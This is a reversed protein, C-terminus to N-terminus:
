LDIAADAGDAQVAFDAVVEPVARHWLTPAATQQNTMLEVVASLSCRAIHGVPSLGVELRGHRRGTRLQPEWAVPSWRKTQATTLREILAMGHIKEQHAASAKLGDGGVVTLGAPDGIYTQLYQEAGLLV